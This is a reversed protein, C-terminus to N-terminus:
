LRGIIEKADAKAEAVTTFLKDSIIKPKRAPTIVARYLCGYECKLTILYGRHMEVTNLMEM